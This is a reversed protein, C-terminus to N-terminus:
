RMEIPDVDVVFRRVRPSLAKRSRAESLLRQGSGDRPGRILVQHRYLERVRAVACPTAEDVQLAADIRGAAERLAAALAEAESRAQGPRADACVLRVLRSYPPLDLERRIELEATAFAEYDLSLASRVVRNQVDQCQVIALSEGLRRGARGVVQVILQFAHEAARFDPM